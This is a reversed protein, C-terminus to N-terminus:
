LTRRAQQIFRVSNAYRTAAEEFGGNHVEALCTHAAYLLMSPRPIEAAFAAFKEPSHYIDIATFLPEVLELNSHTHEPM